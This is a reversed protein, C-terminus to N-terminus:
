KIKIWPSELIVWCGENVYSEKYCFLRHKQVIEKTKNIFFDSYGTIIKVPLNDFNDTIFKEILFDAGEHDAGHLDLTRPRNMM